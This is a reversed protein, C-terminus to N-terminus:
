GVSAVGFGGISMSRQIPLRRGRRARRGGLEAIAGVGVAVAEDVFATAGGAQDTALPNASARACAVALTGIERHVSAVAARAARCTGCALTANCALAALKCRSREVDEEHDVLVTALKTFARPPVFSAM